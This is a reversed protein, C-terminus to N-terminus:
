KALILGMLLMMASPVTKIRFPVRTFEFHGLDSQFATYKISGEEVKLCHFSFRLDLTSFIVPKAYSFTNHICSFSLVAHIKLIICKNLSRYNICFRM